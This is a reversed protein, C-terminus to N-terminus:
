QKTIETKNTANSKSKLIDLLPKIKNYSEDWESKAESMSNIGGGAYIIYCGEDEPNLPIYNCCRLNVYLNCGDADATGLFAGYCIREHKELEKIRNYAEMVPWGCVAPTPSLKLAVSMPDATGTAHIRNCLHEIEGFKLNCGEDVKPHMGIEKLCSVIHETVLNHELINKRDWDGGDTIRRTGALSMTVLEDRSLDYKLLIEPTAVIWLGTEPTYYIARFCSTFRDFYEKAVEFPTKGSKEVIIRSIVTKGSRGKLAETTLNITNSYYPFGTSEPLETIQETEGPTRAFETALIDELTLRAAIGSPKQGDGIGFTSVIFGKWGSPIGSDLSTMGYDSYFLVSDEDPNIVVAFPIANGYCKEAAQIIKRDTLM